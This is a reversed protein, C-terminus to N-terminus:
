GADRGAYPDPIGLRALIQRELQEMVEAEEDAEHDHGCLHLFGHVTLHALHHLFPLGQTVAERQATEFSIVIDGLLAPAAVGGGPLAPFSLVNTPKDLGRWAHNLARIRSVDTLVIALEAGPKLGASAESIARSLMADVGSEKEWLSSERVIDISPPQTFQARPLASM